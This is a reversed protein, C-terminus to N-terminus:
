RAMAEGIAFDGQKCRDRSRPGTCDTHGFPRGRHALSCTHDLHGSTRRLRGPRRVAMGALITAQAGSSTAGLVPLMLSRGNANVRAEPPLVARLCTLLPFPEMVFLVAAAMGLSVSPPAWWRFAFASDLIPEVNM